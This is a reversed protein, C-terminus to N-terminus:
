DIGYLLRYVRRTEKALQNNSILIYDEIESELGLLKGIELLGSGVVTYAMYMDEWKAPPKQILASPNNVHKRDLHAVSTDRLHIIHQLIPAIRRLTDEFEGIFSILQDYSENKLDDDSNKVINFMYGLHISGASPKVTNALALVTTNYASIVLTGLFIDDEMAQFRQYEGRITELVVFALVGSHYNNLLRDFIQLLKKRDSMTM